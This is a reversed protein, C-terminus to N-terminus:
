YKGALFKSVNEKVQNWNGHSRYNRLKDCLNDLRDITGPDDEVSGLSVGHQFMGWFPSLNSGIPM